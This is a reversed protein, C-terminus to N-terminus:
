GTYRTAKGDGLVDLVLPHALTPPMSRGETIGSLLLGVGRGATWGMWGM